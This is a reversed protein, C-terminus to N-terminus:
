VAGEQPCAAPFLDGFLCARSLGLTWALRIHRFIKQLYRLHSVEAVQFALGRKQINRYIDSSVCCQSCMDASCWSFRSCSRHDIDDILIGKDQWWNPMSLQIYWSNRIKRGFGVEFCQGFAYAANSLGTPDMSSAESKHIRGQPSNQCLHFM